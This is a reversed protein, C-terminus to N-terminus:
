GRGSKLGWGLYALPQQSFDNVEGRIGKLDIKGGGQQGVHLQPCDHDVVFSQGKMCNM